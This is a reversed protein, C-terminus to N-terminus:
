RATGTPLEWPGAVPYTADLFDGLLRALLEPRLAHDHHDALCLVDHTGSRAKDLHWALDAGTLDLYALDLSGLEARGTLLGYHQALSSLTSVDAGSRFPSRATAGLVDPFRAELDALVSVRHPYPTHALNHTPVAGFAERLLARNHRAAALYPPPDDDVDLGITTPSPFVRPHGAPTFFAEPRLPRALLMDDNLYVFHEALGEIRHLSTEIAHSNFTPLADPPLLDRHDVLHVQPHDVDLWAPVQGATVLHLRRVWPAFLHVSRMSYRLEGHDLYRARGSSAPRAAAAAVDGGGALVERLRRDRAAGWAPDRGDVWTWVVDVPERVQTATPDLMPPLTRVAVGDLETAVLRDPVSLDEPDLREAYPNRRPAVLVGDPGAEWFQVEVGCGAAPVPRGAADEPWPELRLLSTRGRRLDQATAAVPGRREPWGNESPDRLCLYTPADAAALAVLYAERLDAPLVVTPVPHEHPPVVLWARGAARAAGVALDLADHRARAPTVPTGAPPGAPTVPARPAPPPTRVRAALRGGGARAARADHLVRTWREVLVRADWGLATRAAAAGLHARLDPDDAVRLLGAALGAVSQPAVLLGDVGHTVLERPGDACDFAVVPVGAAMAEQASLSLGETRSSVAAVSAQAWQGRMDPVAGPLEVRDWLDLRRVQGLLDPRTPGQGCIRLRWGPLREAVRGFAEVLTAFQKELVLRGAAVVLPHDLRSRPVAGAPLPPPLVATPPATAGLQEELWRRASQTLLVVADARPAHALLAEAAPARDVARHEVHVVVVRRPLLTTACALLGASSTVVVDADLDGLVQELVVDTLATLRRDWPRPVLASDAAHLRRLTPADMAPGATGAARRPRDPDRLDLLHDVRVRPDLGFFPRDAQRAVSVVRVEHDDALGSALTSVTRNVGNMADAGPVLFAVRV